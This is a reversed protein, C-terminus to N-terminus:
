EDLVVLTDALENVDDQARPLVRALAEGADKIVKCVSEAKAGDQMGRTLEACLEDLASQGLKQLISDDALVAATREFISLYVLLGTAGATHHVRSDFFVQRARLAVEDRMQSKPTFLRRVNGFYSGAAAGVIFGLVLVV